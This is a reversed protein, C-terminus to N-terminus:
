LPHRFPLLLHELITPFTSVSVVTSWLHESFRVVAATRSAHIEGILAVNYIGM